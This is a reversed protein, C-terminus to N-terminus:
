FITVEISIVSSYKNRKCKFATDNCYTLKLICDYMEDQIVELRRDRLGDLVSNISM